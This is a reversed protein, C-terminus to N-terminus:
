KCTTRLNDVNASIEDAANVSVHVNQHIRATKAGDLGKLTFNNVFTVDYPPEGDIFTTMRTVGLGRFTNGSTLGTGFVGMPNSHQSLRIGQGTQQSSVILHLEGSLQVSEGLCENTVVANFPIILNELVEASAAPAALFAFSVTAVVTLIQPIFRSRM